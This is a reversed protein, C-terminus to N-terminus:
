KFLDNVPEISLEERIKKIAQATLENEDLNGDLVICPIDFETCLTFLDHVYKVRLEKFYEKNAEFNEIEQQRGRSFLREEFTKYDIHLILYLDPKKIQQAYLDFVTEYIALTEKDNALNIDAFIKREWIDRDVIYSGSAKRDQMLQNHIFYIQLLMETNPVRKYLWDLMTNFVVDGEEFEQMVPINFIKSLNKSLTSKGSAIMGGIAIKFDKNIM